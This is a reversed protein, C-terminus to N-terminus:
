AAITGHGAVVDGAYLCALQGPATREAPADLEVYGSDHKGSRPRGRLRCAFRRGHARIRVSDVCAGDRHLTVDDLAIGDIMLAERPGVTVTNSRADTALVYLPAGGGIGLGRRQGVTFGLAGAHGGLVGGSADVIPGPRASLGAHRELFASKRTGALFCLDQSAPADAVALGAERALERVRRKGISGLPFRLRALSRPSLAALVYSQDRAEEAAVALVPGEQVRAYHGTALTHAGLTSALELMADLRVSGNCRVCPNPTQGSAHGQLWPEV